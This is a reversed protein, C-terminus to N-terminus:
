YQLTIVVTVNVLSTLVNADKLCLRDGVALTNDRVLSTVTQVISGTQTSNATATLDFATVLLAVGSDPATTGTLKEIQLSAKQAVLTFTANVGIGSTSGQAVPNSPYVSYDGPTTVSVTLVAGGGGVTLVTLVTATGTGGALTITDNAIYGTGGAAVVASATSKNAVHQHVEQAGIVTCAFPAIWFSGYNTATAASTGPVTWHVNVVREHLDGFSINPSDSGKHQHWPVSAVGFETGKKEYVQEAIDTAEKKVFEQVQAYLQDPKM